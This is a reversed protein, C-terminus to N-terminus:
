PFAYGDLERVDLPVYVSSEGSVPDVRFLAVSELVKTLPHEIAPGGKEQIPRPEIFALRAYALETLLDRQYQRAVCELTLLVLPRDVVRRIEQVCVREVFTGGLDSNPSKEECAISCGGYQLVM